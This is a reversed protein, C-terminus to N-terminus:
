CPPFVGLILNEKIIRLHTDVEIGQYPTVAVKDGVKIQMPILKNTANFEGPGSGLVIGVQFHDQEKDSLWIGGESRREEKIIKILLQNGLPIFNEFM